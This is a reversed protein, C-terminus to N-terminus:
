QPPRQPRGEAGPRGGEGGPRGGPGGGPGRNRMDEIQKKQESTLIKDLKATVEKQLEDLQKRQDETLQLQEALFPPLIQGPQPPGFGRGPGGGPGGQGPGGGPGRGGPGGQGGGPGGRGGERQAMATLEERTVVGDKDADAREFLPQVRQDTVESKQLKGDKNSDLELLRAIFAEPNGGGPGGGERGGGPGRQPPPQQADAFSSMALIGSLFMLSTLTRM